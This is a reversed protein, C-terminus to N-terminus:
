LNTHLQYKNATRGFGGDGVVITGVKGTGVVATRGIRIMVVCVRAIGESGVVVKVKGRGVSVVVIGTTLRSALIFTAEAERWRM